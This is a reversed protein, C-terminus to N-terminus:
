WLASIFGPLEPPASHSRSPLRSPSLVQPLSFLSSLLKAIGKDCIFSKISLNSDDKLVDDSCCAAYFNCRIYFVVVTSKKRCYNKKKKKGCTSCDSCHCGICGGRKKKIIIFVIAATLAAALCILVIIDLASMCVSERYSLRYVGRDMCRFM